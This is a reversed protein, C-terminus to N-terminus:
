AGGPLCLAGLGLLGGAGISFAAGFVTDGLTNTKEQGKLAYYGAGFAAGGCMSHRSYKEVTDM